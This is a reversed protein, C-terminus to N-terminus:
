SMVLTRVISDFIIRGDASGLIKESAREPHPMLGFVNFGANAIGAINDMSGNPNGAADDSGDPSRPLVINNKPKWLRYSKRLVNIDRKM